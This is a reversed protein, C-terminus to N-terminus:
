HTYCADCSHKVCTIAVQAWMAICKNNTCSGSGMGACDYCGSNCDNWNSYTGCSSNCVTSGASIINILVALFVFIIIKNYM